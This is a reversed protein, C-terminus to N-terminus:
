IGLGNDSATKLWVDYDTITAVILHLMKNAFCFIFMRLRTEMIIHDWILLYNIIKYM